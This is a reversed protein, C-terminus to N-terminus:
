LEAFKADDVRYMKKIVEAADAFDIKDIEGQIRERSGLVKKAVETWTMAEKGVIDKADGEMTVELLKGDRKRVVGDIIVIEIDAPSSHLIVAAVPDHQAAAVMAPSLADFIALDAKMGVAIKGIEKEMRAAEAGKITALNFAAEVSLSEPLTKTTKGQAIYYENFNNRAHQLGLRAELVISGANNSHCDVGLSSHDQAGVYESGLFSEDFCVPRTMTMQLETSPTASVRANAKRLLDVHESKMDNSHSILIHEDLLDLDKLQRAAGGPGWGGGLQFSVNSHVTITKVGADKVKKFIGQVVQSPFFLLDFAFGLTVRGNAWPGQSALESFTKMVWDELPNPYYTLPNFSKIRMIPAYCYVGRVGSAATAAIGFKAHNPSYTSHAHDVVTTTGAAVAELMGSLQGYFTDIPEFQYSQANGGIMYELLLENAHRGKLQTQWGHHHTDIFGPSVIKDTCDIVKAGEEGADAGIKVIKSDRILINTKTPVVHNDADHILAVGNQLLIDSSM